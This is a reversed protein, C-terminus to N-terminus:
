VGLSTDTSGIEFTSRVSTFGYGLPHTQALREFGYGIVDTLDTVNAVFFNDFPFLNAIIASGVNNVIFANLLNNVFM